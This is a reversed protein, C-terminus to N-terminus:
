ARAEEATFEIFGELAEIHEARIEAPPKVRFPIPAEGAETEGLERRAQEYEGGRTPDKYIFTGMPTMRVNGREDLAAFEMVLEREKEIFFDADAKTARKVKVLALALGYPLTQRGMEEAALYARVKQMLKM